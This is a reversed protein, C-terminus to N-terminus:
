EHGKFEIKNMSTFRRVGNQEKMGSLRLSYMLDKKTFDNTRQSFHGFIFYQLKPASLGAVPRHSIGFTKRDGREALGKRGINIGSSGFPSMKHATSSNEVFFYVSYCQIDIM